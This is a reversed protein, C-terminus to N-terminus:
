LGHGKKTPKKLKGDLYKELGKLAQLQGRYFAQPVTATGAMKRVAKNMRSRVTRRVALLATGCDPIPNIM